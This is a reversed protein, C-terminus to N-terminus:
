WFDVGGGGGEVTEAEEVETVCWGFGVGAGADVCVPM